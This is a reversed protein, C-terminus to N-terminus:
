PFVVGCECIHTYQHIFSWGMGSAEKMEKGCIKCKIHVMGKGFRIAYIIGGTKAALECLKQLFSAEGSLTLV